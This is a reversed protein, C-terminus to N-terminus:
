AHGRKAKAQRANNIADRCADIHAYPPTNPLPARYPTPQDLLADDPDPDPAPMMTPSVVNAIAQSPRRHDTPNM